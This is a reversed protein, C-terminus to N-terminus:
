ILKELRKIKNKITTKAHLATLSEPNYSLVWRKKDRNYSLYEGVELESLLIKANDTFLDYVQSDKDIKHSKFIILESNNLVSKNFEFSQTVSTLYLGFKRGESAIDEFSTNSIKQAEEPVIITKNPLAKHKALDLIKKMFFAIIRQNIKDNDMNIQYVLIEGKKIPMINNKDTQVIKDVVDETFSCIREIALEPSYYDKSSMDQNDNNIFHSENQDDMFKRTNQLALKIDNLEYYKFADDKKSGGIQIIKDAIDSYEHHHDFVIISADHVRINEKIIQKTLTTKGSGTQGIIALHPSNAPNAGVIPVSSVSVEFNLKKKKVFKELLNEVENINTDILTTYPIVKSKVHSDNIENVDDVTESIIKAEVSNIRSKLYSYDISSFNELNSISKRAKKSISKIENSLDALSALLVAFNDYIQEAIKEPDLKKDLWDSYDQFDCIEDYLSDLYDEKSKELHSLMSALLIFNDTIILNIMFYSLQELKYIGTTKEFANKRESLAIDLDLDLTELIKAKFHHAFVVFENGFKDYKKADEDKSEVLQNLITLLRSLFERSETHKGIGEFYHIVEEYSDYSKIFNAFNASEISSRLNEDASISLELMSKENM